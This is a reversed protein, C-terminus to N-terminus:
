ARVQFLYRCLRPCLFLHGGLSQPGHDQLQARLVENCQPTECCEHVPLRLRQAVLVQNLQNPFSFQGKSKRRRWGM